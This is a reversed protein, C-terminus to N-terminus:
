TIPVVPKGTPSWEELGQDKWRCFPHEVLNANYYRPDGSVEDGVWPPLVIKQNEDSLEVEALVLGENEGKFEDVEWTMDEYLVKYRIKEILAKECLHELMQNADELPIEYEFEARSIGKTIGKVTISGKQGATRVRVIREKVRSLYGQRYLRGERSEARWTEDKVLFKRETEQAM